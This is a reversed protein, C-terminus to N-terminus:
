PSFLLGVYFRIISLLLFCLCFFLYVSLFLLFFNSLFFVYLIFSRFFVFFFLFSFDFSQCLSFFSRFFHNLLILINQHDPPSCQPDEHLLGEGPDDSNVRRVGRGRGGKMTHSLQDRMVFLHKSIVFM